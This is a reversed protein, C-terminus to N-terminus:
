EEHREDGGQVGGCRAGARDDALRQERRESERARQTRWDAQVEDLATTRQHKDVWDRRRANLRKETDDLERKKQDIAQRLNGLFIQFDNLQRANMGRNSAAEFRAAYEDYYAQLQELQQKDTTRKNEAGALQRASRDEAQRALEVITDLRGPDKM